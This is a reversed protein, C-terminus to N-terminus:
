NKCRNTSEHRIQDDKSKSVLVAGFDPHDRYACSLKRITPTDDKREAGKLDAHLQKCGGQDDSKAPRKGLTRAPLCKSSQLTTSPRKSLRGSMKGPQYLLSAVFFSTIRQDEETASLGAIVWSSVKSKELLGAFAVAGVGGASRPELAEFSRVPVPGENDGTHLASLLALSDAEHRLDEKM